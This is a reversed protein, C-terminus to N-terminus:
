EGGGEETKEEGRKEEGLASSFSPITRRQPPTKEGRKRFEKEGGRVWCYPYPFFSSLYGHRGRKERKGLKKRGGGGGASEGCPSSFLITPFAEVKDRGMEAMEVLGEKRTTARGGKPRRGPLRDAPDAHNQRGVVVKKKRKEKKKSEERSKM